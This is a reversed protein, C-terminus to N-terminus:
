FSISAGVMVRTQQDILSDGSPEIREVWIAPQVVRLAGADTQNVKIGTGYVGIIDHDRGTEWAVGLKGFPQVPLNSFDVNLSPLITGFVASVVKDITFEVCPGIALNEEPDGPISSDGMIFAGVGGDSTPWYLTTLDTTEYDFSGEISFKASAPLAALLLATLFVIVKM